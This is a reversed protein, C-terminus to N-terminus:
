RVGSSNCRFKTRGYYRPAIDGTGQVCKKFDIFVRRLFNNSGTEHGTMDNIVKFYPTNRIVLLSFKRRDLPAPKTEYELLDWFAIQDEVPQDSPRAHRVTEVERTYM